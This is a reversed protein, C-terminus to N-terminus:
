IHILLLKNDVHRYEGHIQLAVSIKINVIRVVRIFSQSDISDSPLLVLCVIVRMPSATCCDQQQIKVPKTENCLMDILTQTQSLICIHYNQQHMIHVMSFLVLPITILLHVNTSYNALQKSQMCTANPVQGNSPSHVVNFKQLVLQLIAYHTDKQTLLNKTEM